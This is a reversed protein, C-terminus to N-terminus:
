LHNAETTGTTKRMEKRGYPSVEGLGGSMRVPKNDM